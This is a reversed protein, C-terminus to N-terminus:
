SQWVAQGIYGKPYAEVLGAEDRHASGSQRERSGRQVPYCCKLREVSVQDPQEAM